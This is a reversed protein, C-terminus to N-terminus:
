IQFGKDQLEKQLNDFDNDGTYKFIRIHSAGPHDADEFTFMDSDKLKQKVADANLGYVEINIGDSLRHFNANVGDITVSRKTEVKPKNEPM